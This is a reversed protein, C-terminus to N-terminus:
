KKIDRHVTTVNYKKEQELHKAVSRTVSVSRHKGGTCGIAVVFHAKGEEIYMPILFDLFDCLRRVFEESMEFSMVYDYVCDELGTHTKLEQVYFPNPLCRADIVLDSEQPIGYKYGFSMCTILMESKESVGLFDSVIERARTPKMYSTDIELDATQRIPELYEREIELAEKLSAARGSTVLPHIRRSEKYRTIIVEDSSGLYIVKCSVDANSRLASVVDETRDTSVVDRIDLTLCLKRNRGPNKSYVNILEEILEAPMNDICFYGLDEIFNSVTNKGAGSMGTIIIVDITKLESM